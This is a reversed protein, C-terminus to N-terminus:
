FTSPFFRATKSSWISISVVSFYISLCVEAQGRYVDVNLELEVPHLM